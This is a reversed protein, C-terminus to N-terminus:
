SPDGQIKAAATGLFWLLGVFSAFLFVVRVVSVVPEMFELDIHSVLGKSGFVGSPLFTVSWNPSTGEGSEWEGVWTVFFAFVGFPFKSGVPQNLPSWDIAGISGGCTGAGAGVPPSSAPNVKVDVHHEPVTPDLRTGPEPSPRVVTEPDYHTDENIEGLVEPTVVWGSGQPALRKAEWASVSEGPAPDAPVILPMGAKKPNATVTVGSGKVVKTGVAPSLKQVKEAQAELSLVPEDLDLDPIVASGWSLYAVSPTLGVEELLAVCAAATLGECSPVVLNAYPDPIGSGPIQSAIHQGIKERTAEPAMASQHLGKAVREAWNTSPKSSCGTPAMEPCYGSGTYTPKGSAAAEAKTLGQFKRGHLPSLFLASYTGKHEGGSFCVGSNGSRKYDFAPTESAKVCPEFWLQAPGGGPNWYQEFPRITIGQTVFNNPPALTVWSGGSVSPSAGESEYLWCGELQLVENCIVSGIGVGAGFAVVGSLIPLAGAGEFFGATAAAEEGGLAAGAEGVNEPLFTPNSIVTKAANTLTDGAGGGAVTEVLSEGLYAQAAAPAGAACLWVAALAGVFVVLRRFRTL